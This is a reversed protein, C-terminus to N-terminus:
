PAKGVQAQFGPYDRDYYGFPPMFVHEDQFGLLRWGIGDRNGGYAPSSFMGLVTLERVATFFTSHEIATLSEIQQAPSLAAFSASGPFRTRVGQRLEALGARIEAALPACFSSLARDIFQAVGAERAGPTSDTPIIQATIAELDALEAADLVSPGVAPAAPPAHHLAAALLEWDPLALSAGLFGALQLVARRTRVTNVPFEGPSGADVPTQTM